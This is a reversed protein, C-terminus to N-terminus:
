ISKRRGQDVRLGYTDKFHCTQFTYYILPPPLKLSNTPSMNFCWDFSRVEHKHQSKVCTLPHLHEGGVEQNVQTHGTLCGPSLVVCISTPVYSMMM